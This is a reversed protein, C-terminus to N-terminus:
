LGTKDSSHKVICGLSNNYNVLTTVSITEPDHKLLSIIADLHKDRLIMVTENVNKAPVEVFGMSGGTRICREMDEYSGGDESSKLGVFKVLFNRLRFLMNVWSPMDLWLGVMMDDPTANVPSDAKICFSDAHDAPLFTNILTDRPIATKRAKM